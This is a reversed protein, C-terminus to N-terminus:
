PRVLPVGGGDPLECEPGGGADPLPLQVGLHVQQELLDCVGHAGPHRRWLPRAEGKPLGGVAQHEMGRARVPAHQLAARVAGRGLLLQPRGRQQRGCPVPGGPAHLRRRVDRQVQELARGGVPDGPLGADWLPHASRRGHLGPVHRAAGSLRGGLRMADAEGQNGRRLARLVARARGRGGVATPGEARLPGPQLPGHGGAAGGPLQRQRCPPRHLGGPVGGRPAAVRGRVAGLLREVRRGALLVGHRQRRAARARGAARLGRRVVGEPHIRLSRGDHNDTRM